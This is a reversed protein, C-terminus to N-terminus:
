SSDNASGARQFLWADFQARNLSKTVMAKSTKWKRSGVGYSPHTAPRRALSKMRAAEPSDEGECLVRAQYSREAFVSARAQDGHAICIQFADYYARTKLIGAYGAYEDNLVDLMLQFARLSKEPATVMRNPDGIAKELSKIAERCFDCEELEFSPRACGCCGCEFGFAKRLSVRRLNVLRREDYPIV